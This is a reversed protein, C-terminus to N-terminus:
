IYACFDLFMPVFNYFEWLVIWYQQSTNDQFHNLPYHKVAILIEAM